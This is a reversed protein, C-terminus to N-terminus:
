SSATSNQRMTDPRAGPLPRRVVPTTKESTASLQRLECCGPARPRTSPANEDDM